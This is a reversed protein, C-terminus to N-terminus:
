APEEPQPNSEEDYVSAAKSRSRSLKKRSERRQKALESEYEPRRAVRGYGRELQTRHDIGKLEAWNYYWRYITGISVVDCFKKGVVAPSAGASFLILAAEHFPKLPRLPGAM